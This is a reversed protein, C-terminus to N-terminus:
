PGDAGRPPSVGGPPVAAAPEAGAALLDRIERLLVVDEAPAPPEEDAERQFREAAKILLFLVSAVIVFNLVAGLLAGVRVVGVTMGATYALGILDSVTGVITDNAFAQVMANFAAGMVFAVALQLLNGRFLFAKYERLM